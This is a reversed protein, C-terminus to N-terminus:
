PTLVVIRSDRFQDETCIATGAGLDLTPSV